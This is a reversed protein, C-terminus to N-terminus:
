NKGGPREIAIEAICNENSANATRADWFYTKASAALNL